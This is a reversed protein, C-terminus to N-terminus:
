PGLLGALLKPLAMVDLSLRLRYAPVAQAFQSLLSLHTPIMAKDWQEIAHPLLLRTAEPPRLLELAHDSRAEIRPFVIAGLTAQTQWVGPWVQEAALTIKQRGLTTLATAAFPATAPFRALTDPYAAL